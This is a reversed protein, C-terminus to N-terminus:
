QKAEKQDPVFSWMVVKLLHYILFWIARRNDWNMTIQTGLKDKYVLNPIKPLHKGWEM